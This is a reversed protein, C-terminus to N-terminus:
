VLRSESSVLAFSYAGRLYDGHHYYQDITLLAQPCVEHSSAGVLWGARSDALEHLIGSRHVVLVQRPLCSRGAWWKPLCGLQM